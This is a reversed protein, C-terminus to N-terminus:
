IETSSKISVSSVKDKKLFSTSMLLYSGESTKISVVPNGEWPFEFKTSGELSSLYDPTSRLREGENM